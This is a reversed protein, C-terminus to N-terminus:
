MILDSPQSYWNEAIQPNFANIRAYNEFFNKRLEIGGRPVLYFYFHQTDGSTTNGGRTKARIGNRLFSIYTCQNLSNEDFAIDPFLNVVAKPYGKLKQL